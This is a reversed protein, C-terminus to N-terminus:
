ASPTEGDVPKRGGRARRVAADWALALLTLAFAASGILALRRLRDADLGADTFVVSTIMGGLSIAIAGAAVALTLRLISRIRERM